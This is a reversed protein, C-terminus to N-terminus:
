ENLWIYTRGQIKEACQEATTLGNVYYEELFEDVDLAYLKRNIAGGSLFADVKEVLAETDLEHGKKGALSGGFYGMGEEALLAFNKKNLPANQSYLASAVGGYSLLCSEREQLCYVIFRWALEPDKVTAPIAFDDISSVALRGLTDTIPYPGALYEMDLGIDTLGSINMASWCALASRGKTVFSYGSPDSKENITTEEGTARCRLLENVMYPNQGLYGAMESLQPEADDIANTRELFRVFEPSDFSATREETDIYRFREEGFLADKGQEGFFLKMEADKERAQEYWDLLLDSNVTTIGAPDVGISELVARNLYVGDFYFAFPMTTLKGDVEVADLVSSFYEEPNISPDNDWYPRLDLLVGSRSIDYLNLGGPPSYLIYDAEGSILEARVQACYSDRSQNIDPIAGINPEAYDVTITVDPHLEMFEGALIELQSPNEVRAWASVTLEGSLEGDSFDPISPESVESASAEPVSAESAPAAAESSPATSEPPADPQAQGCAALTLLLALVLAVIKRTKM